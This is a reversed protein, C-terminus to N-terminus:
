VKCQQRCIHGVAHQWGYRCARRGHLGRNTAALNVLVTPAAYPAANPPPPPPPPLCAPTALCASRSLCQPLPLPGPARWRIWAPPQPLVRQLPRSSRQWTGCAPSREKAGWSSTGRIWTYLRFLSAYRCAQDDFAPMCIRQCPKCPMIENAHPLLYSPYSVACSISRGTEWRRALQWSPQADAAHKHVSISGHQDCTM